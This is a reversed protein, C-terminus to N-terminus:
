VIIELFFSLFFVLFVSKPTVIDKVESMDRKDAVSQAKQWKTMPYACVSQHHLNPIHGQCIILKSQESLEQHGRVPIPLM